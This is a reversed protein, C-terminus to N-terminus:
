TNDAAAETADVSRTMEGNRGIDVLQYRGIKIPSFALGFELLGKRPM